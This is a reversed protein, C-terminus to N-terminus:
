RRDTKGISRKGSYLHKPRLTPIKRDAEGRRAELALLRQKKHGLKIAAVQQKADVIGSLKDTASLSRNRTSLTRKRKGLVSKKTIPHAEREEIVRKESISRSREFSTSKSRETTSLSRGRGGTTISNDRTMSRSRVRDLTEKEIGRSLLEKEIAALDIAKHKRPLAAHNKARKNLHQQQKYISKKELIKEYNEEEEESVYIDDDAYDVEPQQLRIEEERELADLMREIDPDVFDSINKGEFIEPIIDYRWEPNKLKYDKKEDHQYVGAGGNEEEIEKVTKRKSAVYGGEIQVDQDEDQIMNNTQNRAALVSEPIFVGRQREDRKEPQALHIRSLIGEISKGTKNMKVEVRHELLKDCAAQKVTSVGEDTINSLGLMDHVEDAVTQLLRKQEASLNDYRVLDIKTLVLIIPKGSFLPKINHFLDVQQKISYGCHESVDILFLICSRLHALATISQMEIPNRDELPHDLIGPSDIIQWKLYKYDTHGVFLSKTTFPYPQVDVEARTIKNMFSSKGVNPFGTLIITRTSPDISPLRSLHQRVQELYQLSGSNGKLITAMRGLAARKLQKCRYLSDGYKLLRVYDRGLADVLNRATNLQGLALKYHDKDYLVNLLDAYFPHIDELRPFDELIASLKEHITAQTYKVKRMYFKRIRHINYQPHVVTPTKRQTRSLVIDVFDKGTPVVRVKKFNYVVM